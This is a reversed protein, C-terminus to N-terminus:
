NASDAEELTLNSELSTKLRESDTSTTALEEFRATLLGALLGAAVVLSAFTFAESVGTESFSPKEVPPKSPM